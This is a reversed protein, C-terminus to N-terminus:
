KVFSDIGPYEFKFGTRLIKESSINSQHLLSDAIEGFLLKIYFSPINPLWIKKRFHKSLKKALQKNTLSEPVVANYAGTFSSDIVAKLYINLLDQLHIWPFYQKGSGLCAGLGFRFPLSIKKFAESHESLVIGSRLVVTRINLESFKNAAQEWDRCTTALFDDGCPDTEYYTKETQVNGYYGVASASIFSSIQYPHKSITEFLFATSRVRSEYIEKKLKADWRRGNLNAGALNIIVDVNKFVSFDIHKERWDWLYQTVDVFSNIKRTLWCVEYGKAILLNSLHLGVFGSGGTILIRNM